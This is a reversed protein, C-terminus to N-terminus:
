IWLASINLKKGKWQRRSKRQNWLSETRCWQFWYDVEKRWQGSMIAM